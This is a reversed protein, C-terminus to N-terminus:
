YGIWLEKIKPWHAKIIHKMGEGGIGSMDLMM